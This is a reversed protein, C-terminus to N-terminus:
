KIVVEQEGRNFVELLLKQCKPCPINGINSAATHDKLTYVTKCGRCVVVGGRKKETLQIM